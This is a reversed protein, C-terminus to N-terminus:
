TRRIWREPKDFDQAKHHGTAPVVQNKPGCGDILKNQHTSLVDILLNM